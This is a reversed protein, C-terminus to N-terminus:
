LGCCRSRMKRSGCPCSMEGLYKIRELKTMNKMEAYQKESIEVIERKLADLKDTNASTADHFKEHIAEMQEPTYLEGTRMNGM